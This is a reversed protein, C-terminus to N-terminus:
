PIFIRGTGLYNELYVVIEVLREACRQRYELEFMADKSGITLVPLTRATSEERITRELSDADNMNRNNTLLLMQRSQALRWVVRDPTTVPLDLDAFTVFELPDLELWGEAVITGLLLEAQGEIDHDILITTVVNASQEHPM